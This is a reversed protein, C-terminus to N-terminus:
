VTVSLVYPLKPDYWGNWGQVKLYYTRRGEGNWGISCGTGPAKQNVLTQPV